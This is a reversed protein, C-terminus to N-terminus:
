EQRNPYLITLLQHIINPSMMIFIPHSLLSNQEMQLSNQFLKTKMKSPLYMTEQLTPLKINKWKAVFAGTMM